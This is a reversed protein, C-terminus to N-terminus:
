FAQVPAPPMEGPGDGIPLLNGYGLEGATSVGWCRVTTDQLVVCSHQANNTGKSFAVVPGGLSVANPPMEGPQDGVHNAVEYGIAPSYGWNRVSGDDMLLQFFNQGGHLQSVAGGGYNTNAPPMEGPADGVNGNNGVGLQGANNRGWCRLEGSQFLVCAGSGFVGLQVIVGAGLDLDAPPMEGFNDGIRVTHGLGLQGFDNYGWCRVRNTDLLACTHAEGAGIQVVNGGVNTVPTPMENAQDGLNNSHNLGLQGFGNWGWCHLEGNVLVACAHGGGVALQAITGGVNSVPPPMEGPNDGRSNFTNQGLQGYNSRGWARLQGNNLVVINFWNGSYLQVPVGGVDVPAPPMEGPGDGIDDTSGTGLQGHSGDGWCRISSDALMLCTHDEGRTITLPAEGHCTADCGDNSNLNGDDCEEMGVWWFDDGCVNDQCAETCAADNANDVGNDCDEVGQQVYEDGCSSADCSNLCADNDSVNGDDCEEIGQQLFGDGCSADVCTSLCADTDDANGDDCEEGGQVNGDGCGALACNNSCADDDVDNGDDCGEGPGVYGDGCSALECSDLCTDTNDDDGDDCAEGPDQVGDGCTASNPVCLGDVCLLGADCISNPECACGQTGPECDGDGDGPDGDGPDGDGPDGDGSEGTEDNPSVCFGDICVLEGVCLDGGICASPGEDNSNPGDACSLVLGSVLAALLSRAHDDM